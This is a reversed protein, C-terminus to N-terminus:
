MKMHHEIMELDHDPKILQGDYAGEPRWPDRGAYVKMPYQVEGSVGAWDFDILMFDEGNAWMNVERLDGHVFGAQHLQKVKEFINQRLGAPFPREITDVRHYSEDLRDMVVMHWGGPLIDFGLLAPACNLSVCAQHADKSYARAFKICIPRRDDTEGYFILKEPVAWHYKFPHATHNSPSHYQRPYPFLSRIKNRPDTVALASLEEKYYKKLSQVAKRLAGLHRAASERLRAGDTTFDTGEVSSKMIDFGNARMIQRFKSMRALEDRFFGAMADSLEYALKNDERMPVHTDCDSFFEGFVPHLLTIPIPASAKRPRDFDLVPGESKDQNRAFVSPNGQSSPARYPHQSFYRRHRERFNLTEFAFRPLDRSAARTMSRQVVVLIQIGDKPFRVGSLKEAPDLQEAVESLDRGEIEVRTKVLVEMASSRRPWLRSLSM